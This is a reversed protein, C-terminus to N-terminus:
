GLPSWCDIDFFPAQSLSFFLVWLLLSAQYLPVSNCVDSDELSSFSSLYEDERVSGGAISIPLRMDHIGISIVGCSQFLGDTQTWARTSYLQFSASDGPCTQAPLDFWGTPLEGFALGTREYAPVHDGDVVTAYEESLPLYGSGALCGPICLSGTPTSPRCNCDQFGEVVYSM